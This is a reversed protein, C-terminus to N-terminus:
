LAETLAPEDRELAPLREQLAARNRYVHERMLSEARTGQRRAIADFIELHESHSRQRRERTYITQFFADEPELRRDYIRPIRRMQRSTTLLLQNGSLEILTFHFATNLRRWEAQEDSGWAPGNVVADSQRLIDQLRGRAAETLDREAVVRCAMGELTGRVDYADLVDQDWFRRVVYGRNPSYILLEENALIRLADRIPTRSVGLSQALAEEHLRTGPALKGDLVQDRLADIIAQTRTSM